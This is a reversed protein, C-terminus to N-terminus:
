EKNKFEIFLSQLDAILHMAEKGDDENFDIINDYVYIIRLIENGIDFKKACIKNIKEYTKGDM